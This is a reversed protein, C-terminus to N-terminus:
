KSGEAPAPEAVVRTIPIRERTIPDDIWMTVTSVDGRPAAVESGTLDITGNSDLDWEIKALSSVGEGPEATLRVRTGEFAADFSPEQPM